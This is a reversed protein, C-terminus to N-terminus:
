KSELDELITGIITYRSDISWPRQSVTARCEWAGPYKILHEFQAGFSTCASGYGRVQPNYEPKGNNYKSNHSVDIFIYIRSDSHMDPFLDRELVWGEELKALLESAKM